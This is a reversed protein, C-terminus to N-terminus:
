VYAPILENGLLHFSQQRNQLLISTERTEVQGPVVDHLGSDIFCLVLSVRSPPLVAHLVIDVIVRFTVLLFNDVLETLNDLMTACDLVHVESARTEILLYNVLHTGKQLSRSSDLNKM